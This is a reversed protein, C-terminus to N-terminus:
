SVFKLCCHKIGCFPVYFCFLMQIDSVRAMKKWEPMLAQCPGCWPAYFDVMWIEERKRREVLEVFTEPTLSIVSPNRLDQPL